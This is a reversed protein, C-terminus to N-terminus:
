RHLDRIELDAYAGRNFAELFERIPRLLPADVVAGDSLKIRLTEDDLIEASLPLLTFTAEVFVILPNMFRATHRVGRIHEARLTAAVEDASAGLAALALGLEAHFSTMTFSGRLTYHPTRVADQRNRRYICPM